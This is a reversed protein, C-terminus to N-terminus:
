AGADFERALREMRPRFVSVFRDLKDKFFDLARCRYAPRALDGHTGKVLILM